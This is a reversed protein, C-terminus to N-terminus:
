DRKRAGGASFRALAERHLTKADRWYNSRAIVKRAPFDVIILTGM